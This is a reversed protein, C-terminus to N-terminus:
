FQTGASTWSQRCKSCAHWSIATPKAPYDGATRGALHPGPAKTMCTQMGICYMSHGPTSGRRQLQFTIRQPRHVVVGSPGKDNRDGYPRVHLCGRGSHAANYLAVYQCSLQALM